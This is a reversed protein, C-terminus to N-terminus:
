QNTAASRVAAIQEPTYGLLEGLVYDTDQGITPAARQVSGPTDSLLYRPGEVTTTGHLPHSLTVLHGRELIQPDTCFDESTAAVSAPVAAAQLTTEIDHAHRTRTWAMVAADLEQVRSRRGDASALSQDAALDPREIAAALAHWQADTSATIAVFRAAAPDTADPLAAYVGHPAADRDANGDRHVVAGTDANHAMEPSQFFVGAEVQSIDIYCGKGTRRRHHLAALLAALSFRPGIFDTYPGYPGFPPRNPWGAIDTFGSLASGVNGYGALKCVPGTQGNISTSLMILDEHGARLTPYDLGWKAVMGPSFSEIVVDAWDALDRAARRGIETALDLECGLKGANWTGYLASNEPGFQGDHYPPMFRATEIKTTSEVRVVTAGFDALARGIVPGAVVWSLDLVKLGDLPSSMTTGAPQDVARGAALWDAPVTEDHEGLLPAPRAIAMADLNVAAFPSPLTTKRDGDGVTTFYHRAHLQESDRVDTTDYIPVCLLKRDRAARLVDDKTKEALFEAIERRAEAIDDDTLEGSQLKAPAARWDIEAFRAVPAGEQAMWAFFPGTFGGAAPGMGLHFEVMGDACRWKKLASATASGSGSQDVRRAAGTEMDRPVDGVAHSLVSALTTASVSTQAAVEVLQGRGTGERALLAILAGSAADAAAHLYAQPLSIRVPPTDGDRHPALPGGAAWVTLDSAAHRAKPGHRGFATISVYILRGNVARLDPYDLGRDALVSAGASEILIDAVAALERVTRQGDITDLDATIGRKNASFTDWVYSSEGRHPSCRRASSGAPPEVAVVDAGLDALIRGALLGREDTLDLVRCKGLFTM